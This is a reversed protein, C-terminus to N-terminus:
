YIFGMGVHITPMVGPAWVAGGRFQFHQSVVRFGGHVTGPRWANGEQSDYVASNAFGSIARVGLEDQLDPDLRPEAHMYLRGFGIFPSFSATNVDKYRGFALNYSITTSFDMVGMELQDNGVYGTYGLQFSVDPAQRYGELPAFRGYGGFVSQRSLAVWGLQGGVDISGPLGKRVEIRPIVLAPTPDENSQVAGWPGPEGYEPEQTSTFAITSSMGVEFGNVGLTEAPMIPKNAIAVGLERIVTEYDATNETGDYVPRGARDSMSTLSIDDPWAAQAPSLGLILLSVSLM